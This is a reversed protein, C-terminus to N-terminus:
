DDGLLDALSYLPGEGQPNQKVPQVSPGNAASTAPASTQPEANPHRLNENRVLWLHNPTPSKHIQIIELDPDKRRATYLRQLSAQYNGVLEVEIGLESNLAEYLLETERM